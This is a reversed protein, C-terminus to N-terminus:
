GQTVLPTFVAAGDRSRGGAGEGNWAQREGIATRIIHNNGVREAEGGALSGRHGDGGDARRGNSLIWNAAGIIGASGDEERDACGAAGELILPTFITGGNRAGGVRCIGNGM